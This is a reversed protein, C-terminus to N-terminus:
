GVTQFTHRYLEKGIVSYHNTYPLAPQPATITHYAPVPLPRAVPLLRPAAKNCSTCLDPQKQRNGMTGRSDQSRKKKAQGFREIAVWDDAGAIIAFSAIFDLKVFLTM